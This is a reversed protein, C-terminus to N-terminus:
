KKVEKFDRIILLVTSLHVNLIKAIDEESMGKKHEEIIRKNREKKMKRTHEQLIKRFNM